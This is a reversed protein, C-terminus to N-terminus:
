IHAATRLVAKGSVTALYIDGNVKCEYCGVSRMFVEAAQLESGGYDEMLLTGDVKSVM